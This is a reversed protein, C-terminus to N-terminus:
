QGRKKSIKEPVEPVRYFLRYISYYVPLGELRSINDGPEAIVDRKDDRPSSIYPRPEDGGV